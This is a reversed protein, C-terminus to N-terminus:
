ASSGTPTTSLRQQQGREHQGQIGPPRRPRQVDVRRQDSLEGVPRPVLTKTDPMGFTDDVSYSYKLSVWKWSVPSTSRPRTRSPSAPSLLQGPLLLLARRHRHGLRRQDRVQLRRLFGMGPQLRSQVRRRRAALQHELGLHRPLLRQHARLRLRGPVRAEPRDADPRPFHVPQLHRLQRHDHLRPKAEPAARAPAPTQAQATGVSAAAALVVLSFMPRLKAHM